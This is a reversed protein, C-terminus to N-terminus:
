STEATRPLRLVAYVRQTRPNAVVEETRSIPIEDGSCRQVSVEMTRMIGQQSEALEAYEKQDVRTLRVDAVGHSLGSERQTRQWLRSTTAPVDASQSASYEHGSASRDWTRHFLPRLTPVCAAMIVINQEVRSSMLRFDRLPSKRDVSLGWLVLPVPNYVTFNAHDIM